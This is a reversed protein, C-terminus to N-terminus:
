SSTLLSSPLFQDVSVNEPMEVITGEVGREMIRFCGQLDNSMCIVRAKRVENKLSSDLQSPCDLFVFPDPQGQRKKLNSVAYSDGSILMFGFGTQNPSMEGMHSSGGFNILGYSLSTDQTPLYEVPFLNEIDFDTFRLGPESTGNQPSISRLATLQNDDMDIAWIM